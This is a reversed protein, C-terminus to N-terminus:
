NAPIGLRFSRDLKDGLPKIESCIQLIWTGIYSTSSYGPVVENFINGVRLSARMVIRCSFRRLRAVGLETKEAIDLLAAHVAQTHGEVPAIEHVM